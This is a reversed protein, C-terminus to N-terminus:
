RLPDGWRVDGRIKGKLLKGGANRPLPEDVVAIFQPVKFDALPSSCHAMVVELDLSADAFIVAGVKEGMVDDPVGIVCADRVGPASVLVSEVEISSINEGGRNVVDKIRDVIRLRGENDVTVVDGTHFWGEVMAESTAEPRNWYGSTVNAGRVLLEGVAPDDGLPAIAVDVSPVAFGISGAHTEADSDPLVTILSATETMGYGNFTTSAPFAKKLAAALSPAIPAGGYGVWRVGSIDVSDFRDHRLMLAYVAPVTVLLTIDEQEITEFMTPLHLAPLIVSTAGLYHALLFQSNCATVHFLPASVLTRLKPGVDRPIGFCRLANEANTIFAEHTTPVGKPRSTTGSTYFIAAFDSARRNAPRFPQGDPLPVDPNLDLIAESDQLIFECEPETSRTNVAVPVAGAILAGWFALAWHLGAPYRLAVRDGERVGQEYMGGAVRCARQWLERYTLRGGNVEVVAEINASDTVRSKLVDVLTQPLHSYRRVGGPDVEVGGQPFPNNARSVEVLHVGSRDTM